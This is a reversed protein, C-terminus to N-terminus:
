PAGGFPAGMSERPPLMPSAAPTPPDAWPGKFEGLMPTPEFDMPENPAPLLAPGALPHPTFYSSEGSPSRLDWSERLKPVTPSELRDRSIEAASLGHTQAFVPQIAILASAVVCTTAVLSASRKFRRSSSSTMVSTTKM